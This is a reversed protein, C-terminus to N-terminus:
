VDAEPLEPPTVGRIEDVKALVAELSIEVPGGAPGSVEVEKREGYLEPWRRELRWARARWDPALQEVTTTTTEVGGKAVTRTTSRTRGVTAAIDISAEANRRYEAEARTISNRLDTCKRELQSMASRDKAEARTATRLWRYLTVRDIGALLAADQM